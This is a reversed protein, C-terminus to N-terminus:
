TYRLVSRVSASVESLSCPEVRLVPQIITESDAKLRINILGGVTKACVKSNCISRYNILSMFGTGSVFAIRPCHTYPLAQHCFKHSHAKWMRVQDPDQHCYCILVSRQPTLCSVSAQQMFFSFSPPFFSHVTM